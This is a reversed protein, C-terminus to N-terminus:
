KVAAFEIDNVAREEYKKMKVAKALESEYTAKDKARAAVIARLYSQNPCGAKKLNAKAGALDNNLIYALPLNYCDSGSKKINALADAYQGEMINIAGLNEYSAANGKALYEKAKAYDGKQMEVVGMNNYYSATKENMKSLWSKAEGAKGENLNMAALNNYIRDSKFKKAGKELIEIAAKNDKVIVPAYLYAEETLREDNNKYMEVLQEDTFNKKNVNAVFRSRRLQPLVKTALTEFVKSMNRIERERVVPDSYMSLVRIILDKDEINSNEVLTKFGEWDEGKAEVVMPVNVKARKSITKDYAKKAANARQEALTNNKAIPGDPSAYGIIKGEELTVQEDAQAEALFKEFNKIESANLRARTVDARNIDFLIQAEHEETIEKPYADKEFSATGSVKALMYTTNTGEAIKFPVPCEWSRTEDANYVTGRLELVAKEVGKVYPFVVTREVKQPNLLDIVDYNGRVRTGMMGYTPGVEEGGEYVLVPTVKLVARRQFYNEPFELSYTATIQGAVCELVEPNCEMKISSAMKAMKEQNACFTASMAVIAVVCLKLLNKM